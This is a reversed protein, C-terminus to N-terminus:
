PLGRMQNKSKKRKFLNLRGLFIMREELKQGLGAKIIAIIEEGTETLGRNM